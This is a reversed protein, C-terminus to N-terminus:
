AAASCRPLPLLELTATSIGEDFAVYFVLLGLAEATAKEALAGKSVQWGPLLAVGDAVSCIWALDHGLADRMSYGTHAYREVAWEESGEDNGVSPDVGYRSIDEEAPSHIEYGQKRLAETVAHFVPFNLQPIGRMPGALYLKM